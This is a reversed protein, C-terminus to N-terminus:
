AALRGGGVMGGAWVARCRWAARGRGEDGRGEDEIRGLTGVAGEAYRGKGRDGAPPRHSGNRNCATNRPRPPHRHKQEISDYNSRSASLANSDRGNRYRKGIPRQDVCLHDFKPRDM